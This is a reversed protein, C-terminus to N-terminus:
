DLKLLQELKEEPSIDNIRGAFRLTVHDLTGTFAFKGSDAPYRDSVPSLTFRGVDMCGGGFRARNQHAIESEAVLSDDVYLRIKAGGGPVTSTNEFALQLVHEGSPVAGASIIETREIDFWNYHYVLHGDQLHFSWGGADGGVCILVGEAGGEPIEVKASITHDVNTTKPASGEPLRVMGPRFTVTDRGFFYSPRLRPDGREIFRDDLPFVNHKAAEQMFIDQLERLKAPQQGALDVGQSFDNRLDYLEWSDDDFSASGINVWPLRGHRCSAIWGDHYLARHGFMEFYQTIRTTPASAADAAFTYAMSTGEVPKQAVGDISSPQAIGAVELITPMVDIVHHFQARLAGPDKIRDPWSILMGNRTGGFHSAIQKTWQFPTDGAWAWGVAYHPATGPLGWRDIEPLLQAFDGANGDLGVMENLLGTLTGEASSGNDGIIYIILTNELLDLAEFADVVRGVEHDAHELFDAYNEAQRALLAKQDDTHDDWAPIEDPRPTLKTGEPLIGDALQQRWVQERYADWGMDFRGSNRGRWDLPPQHPAHAAGPAFYAFVPRDPAISKQRNVWSICDDALDRTLQYGDEATGPIDVPTTGRYLSPFFQNTEGAIFGYFYDFGMQTPWNTFPGADSTMNDPVNHNKGFWATAYGNDSLTKAVTGCSKPIIGDYGPFGTALEGINGTHATHHNRGTLLAARTPSCLATTHFQNYKLGQSAVREATPMRVMGGFASSWGFGVDDLLVLLVNPAGDPAADPPPFDAISDAYTTSTRGHPYTWAPRPYTDRDVVEPFVREANQESM